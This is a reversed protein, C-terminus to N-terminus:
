GDGAELEFVIEHEVFGERGPRAPLRGPAHGAAPGQGAALPGLVLASAFGTARCRRQSHVALTSERDAPAFVQWAVRTGEARVRGIRVAESARGEAVTAPGLVATPGEVYEVEVHVHEGACLVLEGLSLLGTRADLEADPITRGEDRARVLRSLPAIWVALRALLPAPADGSGLV